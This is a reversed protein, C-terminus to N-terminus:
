PGAKVFRLWGFDSSDKGGCVGPTWELWGRFGEGDNDNVTFSWTVRGSVVPNKVGLANWPVAAEYRTVNGERVVALQGERLPGRGPMWQFLLPGSPAQTLGLEFETGDFGQPKDPSGSRFALQICDGRWCEFADSDQFHKNDTVEAALYFNQADWGVKVRASCDDAGGYDKIKVSEANPGGLEIAPLATWEDLKGDIKPPKAFQRCDASPRSKLVTVPTDARHETFRVSLHAAQNAKVPPATCKLLLAYRQGPRLLGVDAQPGPEIKWGPPATLEMKGQRTVRSNNRVEVPLLFSEGGRIKPMAGMTVSVPPVSRVYVPFTRQEGLGGQGVTVTVRGDSYAADTEAPWFVHRAEVAQRAPATLSEERGDAWRIRLPQAADSNNRVNVVAEAPEGKAVTLMDDKVKVDLSLKRLTQDFLFARAAEGVPSDAGHAKAADRAKAVAEATPRAPQILAALISHGPILEAREVAGPPHVAWPTTAEPTLLSVLWGDSSGGTWRSPDPKYTFRQPERAYNVIFAALSGDRARWLTGMVAPLTATHPKTRNWTRTLTPLPQTPRLEDLLQGYVLFQKAALRYQCLRGMFKAKARHAEELIWTGNWGLQCGWLFDRGQAMVFADLDDKADQPSTFYITYGSYAAPLLPLDHEYRPSWALFGDVNDMYPEATNETTFAVNNAVGQAKV